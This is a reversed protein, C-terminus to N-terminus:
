LYIAGDGRIFTIPNGNFVNSSYEDYDQGAYKKGDASQSYFIDEVPLCKVTSGLVYESPFQFFLLILLFREIRWVSGILSIGVRTAWSGRQRGRRWRSWDVVCELVFCKLVLRISVSIFLTGKRLIHLLVPFAIWIILNVAWPAITAVLVWRTEPHGM